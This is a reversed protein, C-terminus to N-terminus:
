GKKQPYSADKMLKLSIQSDNVIDTIAQENLKLDVTLIQLIVMQATGQDLPYPDSVQYDRYETGDYYKMSTPDEAIIQAKGEPVFPYTYVFNGIRSYWGYNRSVSEGVYAKMMLTDFDTPEFGIINGSGSIRYLGMDDPLAVVFPIHVRGLTISNVTVTTDDAANTKTFLLKETSQLWSPNIEPNQAYIQPILIARYSNAKKLIWSDDLDVDDELASKIEKVDYVLEEITM